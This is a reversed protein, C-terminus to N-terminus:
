RLSLADSATTATVLRIRAGPTRLLDRVAVKTAEAAHAPEEEARMGLLSKVGDLFKLVDVLYMSGTGDRRWKSQVFVVLKATEDVGVADIGRDAAGDTIEIVRTNDDADSGLVLHVAHLALLRSLNNVDDLEPKWHVPEYLSRVHTEIQSVHFKSM